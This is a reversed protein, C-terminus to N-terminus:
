FLIKIQCAHFKMIYYSKLWDRPTITFYANKGFEIKTQSNKDNISGNQGYLLDFFYKSDASDPFSDLNRKQTFGAVSTTLLVIFLFLRKKLDNFKM